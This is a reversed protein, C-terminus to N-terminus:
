GEPEGWGVQDALGAGRGRGRGLELGVLGVLKGGKAKEGGRPATAPLTRVEEEEAEWYKVGLM